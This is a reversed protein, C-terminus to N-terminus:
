PLLKHDAPADEGAWIRRQTWAADADRWYPATPPLGLPLFAAACMYLSGTSIYTEGLGPQAACLGINLFGDPRFSAPVLTRAVVAGLACRVQAPPLSAPLTGQLALQALLHFAGARYAISRGVAIFSGDPAILRELEEAHRQARLLLVDMRGPPCAEPFARALDLLMPHIVYSNYYDLAFSPGDSYFGDGVYWQEFIGLALGVRVVDAEGTLLKIGAEVLTSFLIWNSYVPQIGRTQKFARVVNARVDPSLQAALARPARVLAHALFATDVLTQSRAFILEEFRAYDRAAPDTQHAIAARAWAAFRAQLAAEEDTEPEAELWPAIGSLLRGVAELGTFRERGLSADKQEVTMTDRLADQAAACLLPEAVQRMHALMTARNM